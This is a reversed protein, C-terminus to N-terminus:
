HFISNTLFLLNHSKGLLANNLSLEGMAPFVPEIGPSPVPIRCSEGQPWFIFFFFFFYCTMSFNCTYLIELFPAM